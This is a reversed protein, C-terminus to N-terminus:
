SKLDYKDNKLTQTWIIKRIQCGLFVSIYFVTDIESVKFLVNYGDQFYVCLKGKCYFNSRTYFCNIARPIIYLRKM